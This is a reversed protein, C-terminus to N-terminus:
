APTGPRPDGKEVGERLISQSGLKRASKVYSFSFFFFVKGCVSGCVRARGQGGGSRRGGRREGREGGGGGGRGREKSRERKRQGWGLPTETPARPAPSCGWAGLRQATPDEVGREAQCTELFRTYPMPYPHCFNYRGPLRAGPLFQLHGEKRYGLDLKLTVLKGTYTFPGVQTVRGTHPCRPSLHIGSTPTGWLGYTRGQLHPHGRAWVYGEPPSIGASPPTARYTLTIWTESHGPLHLHPDRQM